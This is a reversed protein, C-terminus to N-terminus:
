GNKRALHLTLVFAAGRDSDALDLEAKHPALLTRALSLGLGTGGKNKRTTFFPEFISDALDEPVGPGDDCIFVDVLQNVPDVEFDVFSTKAGVERSNDALNRLVTELVDRPSAVLLPPTEESELRYGQQRYHERLSLLREAIDAQMDKGPFM